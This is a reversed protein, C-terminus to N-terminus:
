PCSVQRGTSDSTVSCQRNFSGDIFDILRRELRDEFGSLFTTVSVRMNVLDKVTAKNDGRFQLVSEIFQAVPIHNHEKFIVPACDVLAIVDIGESAFSEVADPRCMLAVFDSRSVTNTAKHAQPLLHKVTLKLSEM